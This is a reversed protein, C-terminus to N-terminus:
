CVEHEKRKEAGNAHTQAQVRAAALSEEEKVKRQEERDIRGQKSPSASDNVTDVDVTKNSASRTITAHGDDRSEVNSGQPGDLPEGVRLADQDMSMAMKQRLAAKSM